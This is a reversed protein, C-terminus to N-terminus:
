DKMLKIFTLFYMITIGFIIAFCMYGVDIKKLLDSAEDFHFSLWFIGFPIISILLHGRLRKMNQKIAASQHYQLILIILILATVILVNYLVGTVVASLTPKMLLSVLYVIIISILISIPVIPKIKGLM